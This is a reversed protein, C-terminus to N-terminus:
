FIVSIDIKTKSPFNTISSNVDSTFGSCFIGVNMVFRVPM